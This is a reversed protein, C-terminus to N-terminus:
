TVFGTIPGGPHATVNRAARAIASRAQRSALRRLRYGQEPTLQRGVGTANHIQSIKIDNRSNIFKASTQFTKVSTNFNRLKVNYNHKLIAAAAAAGVVVTGVAVGTAVPHERITKGIKRGAKASPSGMSNRAHKNAARGFRSEDLKKAIPRVGTKPNRRFENRIGWHMGLVGYHELFDNVEEDTTM